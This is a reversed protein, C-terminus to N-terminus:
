ATRRALRSGLVICILGGIITLAGVVIFTDQWLPLPLLRILTDSYEFVWSNGTFFIRHFDTFLTQFSIAVAVLIFFVFGVTAWGGSAISQWYRSMWKGRWAWLGLGVLIVVVGLWVKMMIQALVKLDVMHSVERDNFVRQGDQFRLDALYSPGADNWVYDFLYRSWKLRDQTTFGYPDPPFGPRNYELQPYLPTGWLRVASTVLFVPILLVIIAALLAYLFKM